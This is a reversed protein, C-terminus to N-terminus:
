FGYLNQKFFERDLLQEVKGRPFNKTPANFSAPKWINGEEDIFCWVSVGGGQSMGRTIKTYKKGKHAKFVYRDYFQQADAHEAALHNLASIFNEDIM